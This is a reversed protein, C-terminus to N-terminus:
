GISYQVHGQEELNRSISLIMGIGISTFWFSTGGMSLLPLPQGTVPLLNVAVAMNSFAQLVILLTLGTTLLASYLSETKKVIRIARMLFALYMFMVILGGIIGYEEIITAFVFDSYAQPM